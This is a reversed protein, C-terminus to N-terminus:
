SRRSSRPRRCCTATAHQLDVRVDGDGLLLERVPLRVGPSLGTQARPGVRAGVPHLHVVIRLRRPLRVRPPAAAARGDGRRLVPLDHRGSRAGVVAPLRPVALHVALRPRADGQDASPPGALAGTSPPRAGHRDSAGAEASCCACCSIPASGPPHVHPLGALGAARTSQPRMASGRGSGPRRPRPGARRPRVGAPRPDPGPGRARGRVGPVQGAPLRPRRHDDALARRLVVVPALLGQDAAPRRVRHRAPPRGAAALRLGRRVRRPDARRGPRHRRAHRRPARRLDVPPSGHGAVSRPRPVHDPGQAPGPHHDPGACDVFLGCTAVEM